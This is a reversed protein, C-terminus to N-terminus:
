ISKILRYKKQQLLYNLKWDAPKKNISTVEFNYPIATPAVSSGFGQMSMAKRVTNQNHAVIIMKQGIETFNRTQARVHGWYIKPFTVSSLYRNRHLLKAAQNM